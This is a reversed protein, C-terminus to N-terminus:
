GGIEIPSKNVSIVTALSSALVLQTLKDGLLATPRGLSNLKNPAKDREALLAPQREGRPEFVIKQLFDTVSDAQKTKPGCTVDYV